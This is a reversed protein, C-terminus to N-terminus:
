SPGLFTGSHALLEEWTGSTNVGLESLAFGSRGRNKGAVAWLKELSDRASVSNLGHKVYPTIPASLSPFPFNTAIKHAGRSGRKGVLESGHVGRSIRDRASHAGRPSGTNM